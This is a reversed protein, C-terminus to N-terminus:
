KCSLFGDDVPITQGNIAESEENFLFLVVDAVKEPMIMAKRMHQSGFHKIKASDGSFLPIQVFGPAVGVVRIGYQALELAGSKTMMIIAGKAAHYGFTGIAASYGYISATNVITGKVGLEVMKKAAYYMGYYVGHQDVNIVKHYTEPDHELFPKNIAIGANNFIGNLTGNKEVVNEIMERVELNNSVDVRYYSSKGGKGQILETTEKATSENIDTSVVIAGESALKKATSRGIGSGAGTIVFVKDRLKM